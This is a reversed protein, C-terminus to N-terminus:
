GPGFHIVCPPVLSQFSSLHRYRHGQRIHDCGSGDSSFSCCAGSLDSLSCGRLLLPTGPLSLLLLCGALWVLWREEFSGAERLGLVADPVAADTGSPAAELLKPSAPAALIMPEKTPSLSKLM